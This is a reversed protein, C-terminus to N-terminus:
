SQVSLMLWLGTVGGSYSVLGGCLRGEGAEAYSTMCIALCALCCCGHTSPFCRAPGLGPLAHSAGRLMLLACGHQGLVGLLM